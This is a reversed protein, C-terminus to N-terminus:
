SKGARAQGATQTAPSGGGAVMEDCTFFNDIPERLVRHATSIRLLGAKATRCPATATTKGIDKGEQSM